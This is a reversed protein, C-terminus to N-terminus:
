GLMGGDVDLSQGTIYAARDSCLWVVAEALEQPYGLRGMAIGRLFRPEHKPNTALYQEVGATRIVGPNVCNVRIGHPAYEKAASRTLGNVAAKASDYASMRLNPSKSARSGINVIAGGGSNMMAPIQHKMCYFVGKLTVEYTTNFADAPTEALLTHGVSLAANNSAVHLSGFRDIGAEIATKVAREDAVDAAQFLAEGQAAEIMAVTELGQQEDIDVVLVRAGEAAFKLCTARGIGSGGGTVMGTKNELMGM